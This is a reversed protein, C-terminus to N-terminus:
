QGWEELRESEKVKKNIKRGSQGVERERLCMWNWNLLKNCIWLTIKKVSFSCVCLKFICIVLRNVNKQPCVCNLLVDKIEKCRKKDGSLEEVRQWEDVDQNGDDQHDHVEKADLFLIPNNSESPNSNVQSNSTLGKRAQKQNEDSSHKQSKRFGLHWKCHLKHM